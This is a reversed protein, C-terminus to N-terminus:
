CAAQDLDDDLDEAGAKCTVGHITLSDPRWGERLFSPREVLGQALASDVCLKFDDPHIEVATVGALGLGEAFELLAQVRDAVNALRGEATAVRERHKAQVAWLVLTAGIVLCGAAGWVPFRAAGVVFALAWACGLLFLVLGGRLAATSIPSPTM